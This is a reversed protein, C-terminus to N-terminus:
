NPTVRKATVNGSLRFLWNGKTDYQDITVTGTYSNARGNLTVKERINTAGVFCSPAGADPTCLKGTNDWSLAFHNLQFDRSGSPEYVGLCFSSTAPDRSSNMIETGDDHWQAYGQDLPANDPIFFPAVNNGKSLFTFQWMGVISPGDEDDILRHRGKEGDDLRIARTGPANSLTHGQGKMLSPVDICGARAASAYGLSALAVLVPMARRTFTKMRAGIGPTTAPEPFM